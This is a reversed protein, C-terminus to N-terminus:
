DDGSLIVFAYCVPCRVDEVGQERVHLRTKWGCCFCVARGIILTKSTADTTPSDAM